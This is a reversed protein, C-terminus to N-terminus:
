TLPTQNKFHGFKSLKLIKVGLIDVFKSNECFHVTGDSLAQPIYAIQHIIRM